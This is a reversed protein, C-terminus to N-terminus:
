YQVFKLNPTWCKGNPYGGQRQLNDPFSTKVPGGLDLTPPLPIKTYKLLEEGVWDTGGGRDNQIPDSQPSGNPLPLAGTHHQTYNHTTQTYNHTNFM